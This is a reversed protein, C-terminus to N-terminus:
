DASRASRSLRWTIRSSRHSLPVARGNPGALKPRIHEYALLRAWKTLEEDARWGCRRGQSGEPIYSATLLSVVGPRSLENGNNCIFKKAMRALWTGSPMTAAPGSPEIKGTRVRHWRRELLVLDSSLGLEIRALAIRTSAMACARASTRADKLLVKPSAAMRRNERRFSSGRVRSASLSQCWIRRASTQDWM